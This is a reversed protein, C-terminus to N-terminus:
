ERESDWVLEFRFGTLNNKEVSEKFRDSVFAEGRTEDIIKFINSRILEDCLKFAYKEFVMIKKGDDFTIYRSKSYDIVDLVTTVNIAYYELDSSCM